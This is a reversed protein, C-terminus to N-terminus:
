RRRRAEEPRIGLGCRRHEEPVGAAPRRPWRALRHPRHARRHLTRRACQHSGRAGAQTAVIAARTGVSGGGCPRRGRLLQAAHLPLPQPGALAATPENEAGTAQRRHWRRWRRRWGQLGAGGEGSARGDRQRPCRVVIPRPRRAARPRRRARRRGCHRGCPPRVSGAGESATAKADGRVAILAAAEGAAEGAAETAAHTSAHAAAHAAAARAAGDEIAAMTAAM